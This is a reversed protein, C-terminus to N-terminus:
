RGGVHAHNPDLRRPALHGPVDLLLERALREGGDDGWLVAADVAVARTLVLEGVRDILSHGDSTGPSARRLRARPM